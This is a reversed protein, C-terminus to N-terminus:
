RQAAADLRAQARAMAALAVAPDVGLAPNVLEQQAREMARRAREVDIEDAREAANALVKTREPLVELFGGHVSYYMKKGAIVFYMFGTGLESLLPAGNEDTKGIIRPRAHAPLDYLAARAQTEILPRKHEIVMLTELGAAFARIGVPELPWPMGVKYIAVGLSAAEQQSIGMAAFAEIVDKYAQGQCVIGLRPRPAGLM